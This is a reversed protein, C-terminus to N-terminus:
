CSMDRLNVIIVTKSFNLLKSTHATESLTRPATRGEELGTEVTGATVSCCYGIIVTMSSKIEGVVNEYIQPKSLLMIKMAPQLYARSAFMFFGNFFNETTEGM